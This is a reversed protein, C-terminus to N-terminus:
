WNKKLFKSDVNKLIVSRNTAIRKLIFIIDSLTPYEYLQFSTVLHDAFVIFVKCPYEIHYTAKNQPSFLKILLEQLINQSKRYGMLGGTTHNKVSPLFEDASLHIEGTSSTLTVFYHRRSQQWM